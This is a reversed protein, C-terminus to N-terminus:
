TSLATRRQWARAITPSHSSGQAPHLCCCLHGSVAEPLPDGAPELVSEVLRGELGPESLRLCAADTVADEGDDYGVVEGALPDLLVEEREEPRRRALLVPGLKAHGEAHALLAGRPRLGNGEALLARLGLR